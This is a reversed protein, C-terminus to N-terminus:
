AERDPLLAIVLCAMAIAGAVAGLIFWACDHASPLWVIAMDGM